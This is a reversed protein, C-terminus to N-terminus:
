LNNIVLFCVCVCVCVCPVEKKLLVIEHHSTALKYKQELPSGTRPQKRTWSSSHRETDGYAEHLWGAGKGLM